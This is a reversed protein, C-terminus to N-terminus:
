LMLSIIVAMILGVAGSVHHASNSERSNDEGSENQNPVTASPARTSSPQTAQVPAATTTPANSTVQCAPPATATVDCSNGEFGSKCTCVNLSCVGNGSCVNADNANVGNCQSSTAPCSTIFPGAIAFVQTMNLPTDFAQPFPALGILFNLYAAHRGEVTAITAAATLYDKNTILQAAGDYASVGTNELASAVKLFTTFNNGYGFSYTCEAVPTGCESQIVSTLTSVHTAEQSAIMSIYQRVQASYGANIVDQESFTQLAQRYFTAELHELTLAYNLVQLNPKAAEQESVSLKCTPAQTSPAQTSPAQTSPAQTSPAQTSPAQTSPAQTSVPSRTTAPSSTTAPLETTVPSNTTSPSRTSLSATTMPSMTTPIESATPADTSAVPAGSQATAFALLAILLLALITNM